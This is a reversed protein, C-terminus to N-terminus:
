LHLILTKASLYIFRFFHFHVVWDNINYRTEIRIKLFAAFSLSLKQGGSRFM